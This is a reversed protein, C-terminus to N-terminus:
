TTEKKLAHGSHPRWTRFPEFDRPVDNLQDIADLVRRIKRVQTAPLLKSDGKTWFRELGKDSLEEVTVVQHPQKWKAKQDHPPDAPEAPLVQRHHPCNGQSICLNM